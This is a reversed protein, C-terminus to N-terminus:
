WCKLDELAYSNLHNFLAEETLPNEIARVTDLVTFLRNSMKKERSHLIHWGGNGFRCEVVGHWPRQDAVRAFLIHQVRVSRVEQSDFLKPIDQPGIDVVLYYNGQQYRSSFTDWNVARLSALTTSSCQQADELAQFAWKNLWGEDILKAQAPTEDVRVIRFDVTLQHPPKFKWCVDSSNTPSYAANLCYFVWGDVPITPSLLHQVAPIKAGPLFPKPTMLVGRPFLAVSPRHLWLPLLSPCKVSRSEYQRCFNRLLALRIYLPSHVAPKGHFVLCDFLMLLVRDQDIFVREADFVSLLHQDADNTPFPAGTLNCELMARDITWVHSGDTAVLLRYGDVKPTAAFFGLPLGQPLPQCHERHLPKPLTAPFVHEQDNPFLNQITTLLQYFGVM